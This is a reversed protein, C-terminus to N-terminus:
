EQMEAIIIWFKTFWGHSGGCKNAEEEQKKNWGADRCNEGMFNYVLLNFFAPRVYQQELAEICYVKIKKNLYEQRVKM